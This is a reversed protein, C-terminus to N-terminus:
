LEPRSRRRRRWFRGAGWGVIDAVIAFLLDIVVGRLLNDWAYSLAEADSDICDTGFVSCNVQAQAAQHSGVVSAAVLAVWGAGEAGASVLGHTRTGRLFAGIVIAIWAVIQVLAALAALM